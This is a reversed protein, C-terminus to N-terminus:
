KGQTRTPPGGSVAVAEMLEEDVVVGRAEGVEGETEVKAGVVSM